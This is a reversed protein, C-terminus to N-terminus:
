HHYINKMSRPWHAHRTFVTGTWQSSEAPTATKKNCIKQSKEMTLLNVEYM